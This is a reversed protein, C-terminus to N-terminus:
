GDPCEQNQSKRMELLKKKEFFNLQRHIRGTKMYNSVVNRVSTYKLGLIQAIVSESTEYNMHM